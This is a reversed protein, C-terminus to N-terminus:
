PTVVVKMSMQMHDESCIVTCVVEYNGPEAPATLDFEQMGPKLTLDWGAVTKHDQARQLAFGHISGDRNGSKAKRAEIRLHILEGAKLALTPNTQGDIKYTSDKDALIDIVRPTDAASARAPFLVTAVVLTATIRSLQQLVIKPQTM